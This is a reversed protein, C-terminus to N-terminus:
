AARYYMKTASAERDLIDQVPGLLRHFSARGMSLLRAPSTTTVNAARAQDLLLAVEGFYDGSTLTKVELRTDGPQNITCVLEGEEVIYFTDGQEGQRIVDEGAEYEEPQLSDAIQSREIESLGALLEIQALFLMYLDHKEASAVHRAVQYHARELKWLACKTLAFVSAARPTNHLIALEGFSHGAHIETLKQGDVLVEASGQDILYFATGEDGQRVIETGATVIVKSMVELVMVTEEIDLHSFLPHESLVDAMQHMDAETKPYIPIDEMTVRTDFPASFGSRRGRRMNIPLGDPALEITVPEDSEDKGSFSLEQLAQKTSVDQSNGLSVQQRGEKRRTRVSNVRQVRQGRFDEAFISDAADPETDTAPQNHMTDMMRQKELGVARSHGVM